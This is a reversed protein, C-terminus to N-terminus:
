AKITTKRDTEMNTNTKENKSKSKGGKQCQSKKIDAESRNCLNRRNDTIEASDFLLCAYHVFFCITM